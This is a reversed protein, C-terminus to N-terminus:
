ASRRRAHRRRAIRVALETRSASKLMMTTAQLRRSPVMPDLRIEGALVAEVAQSVIQQMPHGRERSFAKLAAFTAPDIGVCPYSKRSM